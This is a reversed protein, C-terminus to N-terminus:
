WCGGSAASQRIENGRCRGQSGSRSGSNFASFVSDWVAFMGLLGSVTRSFLKFSWTESGKELLHLMFVNQKAISESLSPQARTLVVFEGRHVQRPVEMPKRNLATRARLRPNIEGKACHQNLGQKREGPARNGVETLCIIILCLNITLEYAGEGRGVFV